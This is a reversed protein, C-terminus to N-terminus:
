HLCLWGIGHCLLINMVLSPHYHDDLASASYSAIAHLLPFSNRLQLGSYISGSGAKLFHVLTQGKPM